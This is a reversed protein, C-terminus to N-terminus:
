RKGTNYFVHLGAAGLQKIVIEYERWKNARGRGRDKLVIEQVQQNVSVIIPSHVHVQQFLM